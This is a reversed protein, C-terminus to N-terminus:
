GLPLLAQVHPLGASILRWEANPSVRWVEGSDTGAYVSGSEDGPALATLNAASPSHAGDGLARWTEGCDTTQYLMSRAGEPDRHSSRFNITSAVTLAYPARSDIVMPRTYRRESDPWVYRWSAGGDQSRYVGATSEEGNDSGPGVRGFGTAAYLVGAHAPDRALMHIDPNAGAMGASWTQGADASHMIGGVEVGVWCRAPQADDFVISLARSASPDGPLGWHESGPIRTLSEVESWTSGGDDSRYLAAPQTGAYVAGDAAPPAAIARVARDQCGSAQWDSGGTSRYVGKDTGALLSGNVRCFTLVDREALGGAPSPAAENGALFAGERTGILIQM